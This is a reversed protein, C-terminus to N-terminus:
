RPSSRGRPSCYPGRRGRARPPTYINHAPSPGPTAGGLVHLKGATAAAALNTRPSPLAAALISWTNASPDYAEVQFISAPNATGGDGGM